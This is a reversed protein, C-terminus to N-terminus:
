RSGDASAGIGPVPDRSTDFAAPGHLARALSRAAAGIYPGPRTVESASVGTVRGASVAPLSPWRSWYEKAPLPDDSADLIVEPRRDVVWEVSIRPYPEDFVAAVNQAGAVELISDIFNAGGVVYLPDRQLVLLARVSPRSRTTRRVEALSARIEEVLARAETSRGVADGLVDISALLEELTINPLALVRVGLAEVRDRFSRQQASPVLVVLDPTLATVAELSPSFLGGVVPLGRVEPQQRASYEDVGVLRDGVGLALLTETLSPNMSVIRRATAPSSEEAGAAVSGALAALALLACVRHPKACSM